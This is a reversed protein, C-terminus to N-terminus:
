KIDCRAWRAARCRQAAALPSHFRREGYNSYYCLLCPSLFLPQSVAMTAMMDKINATDNQYQTLKEIEEQQVQWWSIQVARGLDAGRWSPDQEARHNLKFL